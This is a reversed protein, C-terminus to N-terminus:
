GAVLLDGRRQIGGGAPCLQPGAVGGRHGREQPGGLQAGILDAPHLPDSRGRLGRPIGSLGVAGPVDDPPRQRLGAAFGACLQQV